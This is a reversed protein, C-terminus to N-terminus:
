SCARPQRRTSQHAYSQISAISPYQLISNSCTELEGFSVGVKGVDFIVLLDNRESSVGTSSTTGGLCFCEFSGETTPGFFGDSENGSEELVGLRISVGLVDINLIQGDLADDNVM